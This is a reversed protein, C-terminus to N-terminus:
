SRGRKEGGYAQVHGLMIILEPKVETVNATICIITPHMMAQNLISAEIEILLKILM